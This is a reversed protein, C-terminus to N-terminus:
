SSIKRCESLCESEVWVWVWVSDCSVCTSLTEQSATRAHISAERHIYWVYMCIVCIYMDTCAYKWVYLYARMCAHSHCAHNYFLLNKLHIHETWKTLFSPSPLFMDINNIIFIVSLSPLMKCSTTGNKIKNWKHQLVPPFFYGSGHPYSWMSSSLTEWPKAALKSAQILHPVKLKNIKFPMGHIHAHMRPAYLWDRKCPCTSALFTAVNQTLIRIAIRWLALLTFTGWPM